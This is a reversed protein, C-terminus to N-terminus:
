GIISGSGVGAGTILGLIFLGLLTLRALALSNPYILKISVPLLIAIPSLPEVKQDEARSQCLVDGREKVRFM